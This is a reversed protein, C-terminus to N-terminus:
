SEPSMEVSAEAILETQPLRHLEISLDFDARFGLFHLFALTHHCGAATLSVFLLLDDLLNSWTHSKKWFESGRLDCYSLYYDVSILFVIRNGPAPICFSWSDARIISPDRVAALAVKSVRCFSNM